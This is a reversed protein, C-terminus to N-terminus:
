GMGLDLKGSLKALEPFMSRKLADQRHGDDFGERIVECRLNAAFYEHMGAQKPNELRMLLACVPDTSRGFAALARGAFHDARTEELRGM